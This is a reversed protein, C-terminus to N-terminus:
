RLRVTRGFPPLEVYTVTKTSGAEDELDDHKDIAAEPPTAPPDRRRQNRRATM